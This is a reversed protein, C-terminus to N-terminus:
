SNIESVQCIQNLYPLLATTSAHYDRIMKTLTASPIYNPSGEGIDIMREQCIDKCCNLVFAQSPTTCNVNFYEAQAKNQPFNMIMFRTERANQLFHILVKMKEEDTARCLKKAKLFRSFDM